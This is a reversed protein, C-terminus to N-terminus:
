TAGIAGIFHHTPRARATSCSRRTPTSRMPKHIAPTPHDTTSRSAAGISTTASPSRSSTARTRRATPRRATPRRATPRRATPAPAMKRRATSQTRATPRRRIKKPDTSRAATRSTMAVPLARRSGRRSLSCSGARAPCLTEHPTSCGKQPTADPAPHLTRLTRRECFAGPRTSLGDCLTPFRQRGHMRVASTQVALGIPMASRTREDGRCRRTLREFGAREDRSFADDDEAPRPKEPLNERAKEEITEWIEFANIKQDALAVRNRALCSEVLGDRGALRKTRDGFTKRTWAVVFCEKAFLDDDDVTVDSLREATEIRLEDFVNAPGDSRHDVDRADHIEIRREVFREIRVREARLVQDRERLRQRRRIMGCRQHVRRRAVRRTKAFTRDEFFFRENMRKRPAVLKSFFKPIRIAFDGIAEVHDRLRLVAAVVCKTLALKELSRLFIKQRAALGRLSSRQFRLERFSTALPHRVLEDFRADLAGHVPTPRVRVRIRFRDALLEDRPATQSVRDDPGRAALRGDIIRKATPVFADRRRHREHEERHLSLRMQGAPAIRDQIEDRAVDDRAPHDERQELEEFSRLRREVLEARAVDVRAAGRAEALEASDVFSLAELLLAAVREDIEHLRMELRRDHRHARDFFNSRGCIRAGCAHHRGRQLHRRADPSGRAFRELIDRLALVFDRLEKTEERRERAVRETREIAVVRAGGERSQRCFVLIHDAPIGLREIPGIIVDAHVHGRELLPDKGFHFLPHHALRLRELRM